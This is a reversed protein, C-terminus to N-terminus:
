GHSYILTYKSKNDIFYCFIKNGLKNRLYILGDNETLTYKSTLPPQYVLGDIHNGM